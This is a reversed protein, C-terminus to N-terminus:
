RDLMPQCVDIIVGIDKKTGPYAPDDAWIGEVDKFGYDAKRSRATGNVAYQTGNDATFVVMTLKLDGVNLPICNVRGTRLTLPWSKGFAKASVNVGHGDYQYRQSPTTPGPAPPQSTLTVSGDTNTTVGSRPDSSPSGGCASTLVLAAVCATVPITLKM